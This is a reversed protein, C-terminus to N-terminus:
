AVLLGLRALQELMADADLEARSRTGDLALLLARAGEDDLRLEEHRLSTVLPRGVAVQRRALPSAVPRDGTGSAVPPPSAHLEVIHQAHAEIL